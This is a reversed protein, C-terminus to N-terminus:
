SILNEWLIGKSEDEWEKIFLTFDPDSMEDVFRRAATIQLEQNHTIHVLEVSM